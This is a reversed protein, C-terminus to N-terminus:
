AGSGVHPAEPAKDLGLDFGHLTWRSDVYKYSLRFTLRAPQTPFYGALQVIDGAVNFAANTIVPDLRATVGLDLHKARMAGLQQSLAAVSYASQFEPSGLGRLVSYNATANADNIAGLTSRILRVAEARNPAAESTGLSAAAPVSAQLVLAAVLAFACKMWTAM